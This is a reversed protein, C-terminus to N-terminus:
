LIGFMNDEFGTLNTLSLVIDFTNDPQVDPTIEWVVTSVLDDYPTGQESVNLYADTNFSMETISTCYATLYSTATINKNIFTAPHYNASSNSNGVPFVYENTNNTIYRRIKGNVFSNTSYGQVANANTNSVVLMNNNTSVIGNTLTLTGYVYHKEIDDLSISTGAASNNITLNEFTTSLSGGISQQASGCFTVTGNNDINTFVGGSTANNRWNGELALSGDIDVAGNSVNTKNIFGASAGGDIKINVGTTINIIAGNNILGQSFCDAPPLLCYVIFFLSIIQQIINRM